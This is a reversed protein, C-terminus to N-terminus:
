INLTKKENEKVCIYVQTTRCKSEVHCTGRETNLQPMWKPSTNTWISGVIMIIKPHEILGNRILCPLCSPEDEQLCYKVAFDKPWTSDILCCLASLTEAHKPKRLSLILEVPVLPWQWVCVIFCVSTRHAIAIWLQVELLVYWHFSHCLRKGDLCDASFRLPVM